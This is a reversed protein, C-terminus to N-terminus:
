IANKVRIIEAAISIAIEEPTEAEIEIGIPTHIKDLDLESFGSEKLQTFISKIKKSSGMSGIYKLNLHLIAELADKDGAHSPTVIVVYSKVGEIIHEHIKNYDTIIIKNAYKNESLTAVESRHDFVTVFFDLTSMIRSVALGVHGGGIIYVKNPSGINEKLLWKDISSTFIIENEIELKPFFTFNNEEIQLLGSNQSKISKIIENITSLDSKTLSKFVITQIGGCILGSKDGNGIKSHHLKRFFGVEQNNQLIETAENVIDFEMIGGGITGVHTSDDSIAMKFGTRGPSNKSSDAVILLIISHYNALKSAIFEWIKLDKM